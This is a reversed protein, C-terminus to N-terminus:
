LSTTEKSHIDFTTPHHEEPSEPLPKQSQRHFSVMQHAVALMPYLADRMRGFAAHLSQLGRIMADLQQDEKESRHKVQIPATTISM